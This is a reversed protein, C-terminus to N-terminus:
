DESLISLPLSTWRELSSHSIVKVEVKKETRQSAPANLLMLGFLLPLYFVSALLLQRAQWKTRRLATRIGAYLFFVGLAVAGYLYLHGSLGSLAPLASVIVLMITCVVIHQGTLKGDTEVAPLMRIGARTYDERYLIGIALFHPFQWFFLIAFLIWAEIGLAGRAAAWGLLPPTAGPLAGLLTCLPTRRKLPTYVFLYSALTFLAILGSLVNIEVAIFVIAAASLIIGFWAAKRPELKGTPLPRRETRRMLADVDRELYQNLAFIGGALTSVGILTAILPWWEPEGESGLWFAALAVMVILVSVRPKTLEIYARLRGWGDLSAGGEAPASRRSVMVSSAHPNSSRRQNRNM